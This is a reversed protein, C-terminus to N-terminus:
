SLHFGVYSPVSLRTSNWTWKGTFRAAARADFMQVFPRDQDALAVNAQIQEM